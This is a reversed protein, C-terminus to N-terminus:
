ENERAPSTAASLRARMPAALPLCLGSRRFADAREEIRVVCGWRPTTQWGISSRTLAVVEHAVPVGLRSSRLHFGSDGCVLGIPAGICSFEPKEYWGVGVGGGTGAGGGGGPGLGPSPSRSPSSPFHDPTPNFRIQRGVCGADPLSRKRLILRVVSVISNSTMGPSM